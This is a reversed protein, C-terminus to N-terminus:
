LFLIYPHQTSEAPKSKGQRANTLVHILKQDGHSALINEALWQRYTTFLSEIEQFEKISVYLKGALTVEWVGFYLKVILMVASVDFYLKVTLTVASGFYFNVILMVESVRFYLKVTLTVASVGFYLKVTLM